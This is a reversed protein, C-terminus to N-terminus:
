RIPIALAKDTLGSNRSQSSGIEASSTDIWACTTLTSSSRCCSSPSVYRNTACSRDMTRWIESLIPTIYRPLITSLPSLSSTYSLGHWGYVRASRAEMGIASGLRASLRSCQSIKRTRQMNRGATTEMCATRVRGILASLLFRFQFLSCRAM